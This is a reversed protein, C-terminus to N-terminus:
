LLDLADAIEAHLQSGVTKGEVTKVKKALGMWWRKTGDQRIEQPAEILALYYPFEQALAHGLWRQLVDVAHWSPADKWHPIDQKQRQTYARTLV